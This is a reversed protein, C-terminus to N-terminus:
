NYNCAIKRKLLDIASSSRVISKLLMDYFLSVSYFIYKTKIVNLNYSFGLIKATNSNFDCPKHYFYDFINTM